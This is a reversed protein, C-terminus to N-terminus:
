VEVCGIIKCAKIFFLRRIHGMEKRSQVMLVDIVNSENLICNIPYFYFLGVYLSLLKSTEFVKAYVM